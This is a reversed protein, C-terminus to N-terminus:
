FGHYLSTLNRIDLDLISRNQYIPKFDDFNFEELKMLGTGSILDLFEIVEPRTVLNAMYMGGILDPRVLKNAGARQLKSEASAENARAIIRLEPNLQRATLTVFVNEADNPLTTILASAREVGAEKLIEDQTADGDIFIIQPQNILHPLNEKFHVMNKDIVVVPVKEKVFEECAKHGNKGYGCVIVHNKLKKIKRNSIYNSFIDRLEGELIYGTIVSAFLAFVGLNFLIFVATFMRGTSSLPHVEMFGVTGITIITMYFADAIPWGEILMYGTIGTIISFILVGFAWFLKRLRRDLAFHWTTSSFLFRLM